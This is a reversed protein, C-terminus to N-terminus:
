RLQVAVERIALQLYVLDSNRDPLLEGWAPACAPAWAPAWATFRAIYTVPLPLVGSRLRLMPM